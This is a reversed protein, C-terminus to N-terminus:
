FLTAQGGSMMGSMSSDHIRKCATEFFGEDLEVGIFRRGLTVSAVGTSGSGMFPDLVVGGEVSSVRVLRQLFPVPKCTPHHYM